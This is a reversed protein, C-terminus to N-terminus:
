EVLGVATGRLLMIWLGAVSAVTGRVVVYGAPATWVRIVPAGFRGLQSSRGAARHASAGSVCRENLQWRLDLWNGQELGAEEM